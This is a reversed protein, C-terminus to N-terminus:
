NSVKFKTKNIETYGKNFSASRVINSIKRRANLFEINKGRITVLKMDEHKNVTFDGFDEEIVEKKVEEYEHDDNEEMTVKPEDDDTEVIMMKEDDKNMM